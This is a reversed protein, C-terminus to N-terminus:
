CKSSDAEMLLKPNRSFYCSSLSNNDSSSDSTSECEWVDKNQPDQSQNIIRDVWTSNKMWYEYLEALERNNSPEIMIDMKNLERIIVMKKPFLLIFFPLSLNFINAFSSSSALSSFTKVCWAKISNFCYFFCPHFHASIRRKYHLLLSRKNTNQHLCCQHDSFPLSYLDVVLADENYWLRKLWTQHLNIM